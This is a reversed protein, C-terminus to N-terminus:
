GLLGSGERHCLHVFWNSIVSEQSNPLIFEFRLFLACAYSLVIAGLLPIMRLNRQLANRMCYPEEELVSDRVGGGFYKSSARGATGGPCASLESTVRVIDHTECVHQRGRDGLQRLLTEIKCFRRFHTRWHSRTRGPSGAARNGAEGAGAHRRHIHRRSPHRLGDGGHAGSTNRRARWPGPRHEGPGVASVPVEKYIRLLEDHGLTGLFKVSHHLGFSQM